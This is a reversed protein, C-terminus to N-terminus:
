SVPSGPKPDNRLVAGLLAADVAGSGAAVLLGVAVAGSGEAAGTCKEMRAGPLTARWGLAGSLCASAAVFSDAGPAAPESISARLFKKRLIRSALALLSATPLMGGAAAVTDAVGGGAELLEEEAGPEEMESFERVLVVIGLPTPLGIVFLAESFFTSLALGGTSRLTPEM